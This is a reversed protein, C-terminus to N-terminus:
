YRIEYTGAQTIYKIFKMTTYNSKEQVKLYRVVLGSASFMDLNFSVLIPPRSWGLANQSLIPSKFDNLTPSLTTDSQTTKTVSGPVIDVSGQLVLQDQGTVKNLKWIVACEETSFRAKGGTSELNAKISGPPVPIKIVVNTAFLKPPFLSKMSINFNFLTKGSEQIQPSILFPLNINETCRYKMLEFEDDPPVFHILRDSDFKDLEVCQHFKCDELVVKDSAAKPIAATNPVDYHELPNGSKTENMILSDNLGFRCVPMGTLKTKMQINGNVYSQLVTGNANMLVNIEENVWLFIENKRYKIGPRRWGVDGVFQLDESTAATNHRNLDPSRLLNPSTVKSILSSGSNSSGYVPTSLFRQLVGFEMNQPYGFEIAQDLLEYVVTFNNTIDDECLHGDSTSVANIYHSVNKAVDNVRSGDSSNASNKRHGCLSTELLQRFKNLFEFIISADQNSRAVAVFWLGNSKIHLFTTSGLTLIPSRIENSSIVQIRFVEAINHRINDRFLKSILIDGKRNFIFFATIMVTNGHAILVLQQYRQCIEIM